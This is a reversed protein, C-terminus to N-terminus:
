NKRKKQRVLLFSVLSFDGATHRANGFIYRAQIGASVFSAESLCYRRKDSNESWKQRVSVIGSTASECVRTSQSLETLLFNGYILVFLCQLVATIVSHGHFITDADINCFPLSAKNPLGEKKDSM